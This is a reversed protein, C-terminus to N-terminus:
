ASFFLHQRQAEGRHRSTFILLTSPEFSVFSIGLLHVLSLSLYVQGRFRRPGKCFVHVSDNFSVPETFISRHGLSASGNIQWSSSSFDASGCDIQFTRVHVKTSTVFNQLFVVASYLNEGSRMKCGFPFEFLPCLLVLCQVCCLQDSSM